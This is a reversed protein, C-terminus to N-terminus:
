EWRITGCLFFLNVNNVDGLRQCKDHTRNVLQLWAIAVLLCNLLMCVRLVWLCIRPVWLRFHWWDCYQFLSTSKNDSSSRKSRYVERYLSVKRYWATSHASLGCAVIAKPGTTSPYTGFALCHILLALVGGSTWQVRGRLVEEAGQLLHHHRQHRREIVFNDQWPIRRGASFIYNFWITSTLPPLYDVLSIQSFVLALVTMRFALPM